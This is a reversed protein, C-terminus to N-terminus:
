ADLDGNVAPVVDFLIKNSFQNNWGDERWIDETAVVKVEVMGSM